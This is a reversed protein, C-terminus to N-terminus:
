RVGRSLRGAGSKRCPITHWSYAGCRCDLRLRYAGSSIVDVPPFACWEAGVLSLRRRGCRGQESFLCSVASVNRVSNCFAVIM